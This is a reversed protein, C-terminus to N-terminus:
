NEQMDLPNSGVASALLLLSFAYIDSVNCRLLTCCPFPLSTGLELIVKLGCMAEKRKGKEKNQKLFTGQLQNM